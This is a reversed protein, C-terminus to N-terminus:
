LAFIGILIAYFVIRKPISLKEYSTNSPLRFAEMKKAFKQNNKKHSGNFHM